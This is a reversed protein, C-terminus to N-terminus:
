KVSSILRFGLQRLREARDPSLRKSKYDRRQTGCWMGLKPNDKWIAPVNCDGHIKKYDALAALMEEWAAAL